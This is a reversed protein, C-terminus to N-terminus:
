WKGSDQSQWILIIVRPSRDGRWVGLVAELLSGWFFLHLYNYHVLIAGPTLRWLNIFM